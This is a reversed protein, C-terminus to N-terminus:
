EVAVRRIAYNESDGVYLVNDSTIALGIPKNFQAVLSTGNVYGSREPIGAMTSVYGTSVSIRRICHNDRDAVYINNDSDICMQCPHNFQAFTREGDLYGGTGDVGAFISYTGSDIEYKYICHRDIASLYLINDDKRDFVMGYTNGGNPIFGSAIRKGVLESPDMWGLFGEGTRTYFRGDSPRMVMATRAGWSAMGGGSINDGDWRVAGAGTKTYQATRNFVSFDNNGANTGMTYVQGDLPNYAVIASTLFTDSTGVARIRDSQENVMYFQDVSESGVTGNVVMFLNDDGDVALNKETKGSFQANALATTGAPNSTAGTTGGVLTTINTNVVYDFILDKYATSDKGIKVSITCEEGPRKPALVLMRTGRASIVAAPKDNFWVKVQKGDNGFNDGELIVQTAIGGTKPFFDTLVVKQSPNYSPIDTKDDKCSLLCPVILLCLLWQRKCITSVFNEM